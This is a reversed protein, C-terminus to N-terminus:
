SGKLSDEVSRTQPTAPLIQVLTPPRVAIEQEMAVHAAPPAITVDYGAAIIPPRTYEWAFDGTARVLLVIAALVMLITLVAAGPGFDGGTLWAPGIAHTEVVTSFTTLGGLPLGFLVATSAVSAFHLGWLLWLAHTRIWCLSILVSLLTSVAIATGTSAPNFTIYAASLVAMLITARTPGIAAILGRFAYGHIGIDKALTALALTPVGLLLLQGMHPTKWFYVRLAGALAMPLICAVSLGWGVAAGTAWELRSTARRPLGVTLRLPTRRREIAGLFAIGLIVLFLLLLNEVMPRFDGLDLRLSLGRAASESLMRACFFWVIAAVFLAFQIFRRPPTPRPQSPRPPPIRIPSDPDLL